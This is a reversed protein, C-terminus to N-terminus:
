LKASLREIEKCAKTHLLTDVKAWNSVADIAGLTDGKMELAEALRRWAVGNIPEIELAKNCDDIADSINIESLRIDARELLASM